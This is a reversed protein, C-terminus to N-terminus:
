KIKKILDRIQAAREFDLNKAAEQMEKELVKKVETDAAIHYIRSDLYPNELSELDFEEKEKGPLQEYKGRKRKLLKEVAEKGRFDADIGKNIALNYIEKIKM